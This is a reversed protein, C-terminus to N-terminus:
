GEPEPRDPVAESEPARPVPDLGPDVEVHDVREDYFSVYGTLDAADPLPSEYTWAVDAVTRDGVEASFYSAQGKYACITRTPSPRLLEQRVDERPIYCRPLLKTEFVVRPRATEALVEGDLEIRVRRSSLRVDVRHFPDRPHGGIPEEEELWEDFADFDLIAYGALDPDAVRFAAGPLLAEGVRLTLEDGEATHVEFGASEIVPPGGAGLTVLPVTQSRTPDSGVADVLEGAIDEVPVAYGPVVRRPEWVLLARTTDVVTEGGLRARVRKPTPEIRLETMTGLLMEGLRMAM